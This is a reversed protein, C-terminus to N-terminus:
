IWSGELLARAENYREYVGRMQEQTHEHLPMGPQEFAGVSLLREGIGLAARYLTVATSLNGRDVEVRALGDLANMSILNVLYGVSARQAGLASKYASEADDLRGMERYTDGANLSFLAVPVDSGDHVRSNAISLAREILAVGEDHRRQAVLVSGLNNLLICLQEDRPGLTPELIRLAQRHFYEAEAYRGRAQYFPGLESAAWGAQPHETGYTRQVLDLAELLLTEAVAANDEEDEVRALLRLVRARDSASRPNMGIRELARAYAIRAEPYDSRIAADRGREVDEVWDPDLFARAGCATLSFALLTTLAIRPLSRAISFRTM